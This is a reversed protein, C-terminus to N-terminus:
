AFSQADFSGKLLSLMAVYPALEIANEFEIGFRAGLSWIVPGHLAGISRVDVGIREGIRVSRDSRIMCGHPSVNVILAPSPPLAASWIRSPCDIAERPARRSEPSSAAQPM